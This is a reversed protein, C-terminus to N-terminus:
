KGLVIKVTRTQPDASVGDADTVNYIVSYTGEQAVNVNENMVLRSSINTTDGSQNVVFAEAGPDVYPEDLAWNLPNLGLLIIFPKNGDSDDKNCAFFLGSVILLLFIPFIIKKM